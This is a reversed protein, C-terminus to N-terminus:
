RAIVQFVTSLWRPSVAPSNLPVPFGTGFNDIGGCQLIDHAKFTLPRAPAPFETMPTPLSGLRGFDIKFLQLQIRAMQRYVQEMTADDIDDRIMRKEPCGRLIEELSVGRIFEMMIFAGLKLPNAEALGWCYIAPVPVNTQSRLLSLAEVEIAVKEHAYADHVSGFQALRVLWEDGNSFIVRQGLNYGGNRFKPSKDPECSLGDPHCASVWKCFEGRNIAQNVKQAWLSTQATHLLELREDTDM